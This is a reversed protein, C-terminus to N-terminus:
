TRGSIFMVQPRHSRIARGRPPVYSLQSLMANAVRPDDTRTRDDGSNPHKQPKRPVLARNNEGAPIRTSFGEVSKYTHFLRHGSSKGRLANLGKSVHRSAAISLGKWTACRYSVQARPVLNTVQKESSFQFASLQTVARSPLHRHTRLAM